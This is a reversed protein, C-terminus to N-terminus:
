GVGDWGKGDWGMGVWGVSTRSVHGFWAAARRHGFWATFLGVVRSTHRRAVTCFFRSRTPFFPSSRPIFALSSFSSCRRSPLTSSAPSLFSRCLRTRALPGCPGFYVCSRARGNCTHKFPTSHLRPIDGPHECSEISHTDHECVLARASARVCVVCVCVCVCVCACACVCVCLRACVCVCVRAHM